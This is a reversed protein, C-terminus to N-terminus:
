RYDIEKLYEAVRVLEDSTADAKIRNARQSIIAINGRVYGLHPKVRDVSPSNQIDGGWAMPIGLAPCKWDSPFIQELYDADIDFPLGVKKARDRAM